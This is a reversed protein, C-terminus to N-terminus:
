DILLPDTPGADDADSHDGNNVDEPNPLTMVFRFFIISALADLGGGIIFPLALDVRAILGGILSGIPMTGWLLTRWTGHVRGLLRGP